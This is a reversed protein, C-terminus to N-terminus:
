ASETYHASGTKASRLPNHPILKLSKNGGRSDALLCSNARLGTEDGYEECKKM